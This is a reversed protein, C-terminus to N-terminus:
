LNIQKTLYVTASMNTLQPPDNIVIPTTVSFSSAAALYSLANTVDSFGPKIHLYSGTWIM